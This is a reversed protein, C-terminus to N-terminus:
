VKQKFNTKLPNSLKQLNGTDKVRLLKLEDTAMLTKLFFFHFDFLLIKAYDM